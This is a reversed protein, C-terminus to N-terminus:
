DNTDEATEIGHICAEAILRTNHLGAAYAATDTCAEGVDVATCLIAAIEALAERIPIGPAIAQTIGTRIDHAAPVSPVTVCDNLKLDSTTKMHDEGSDLLPPVASPQYLNTM